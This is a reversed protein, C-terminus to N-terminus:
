HTRGHVEEFWRVFRPIGDEVTTVPRYGLLRAAKRVDACTRRVDGPQEPLRELRAERGVARAILAVLASLTTTRSEGLNVIEVGPGGAATWGVAATVGGVIDDIYTYDRESSGDGYFPVPRGEAILRTFKHIALDPRQRPGYVTFFRLAMIRLGYLQAFTACLLEGARKTAAYPSIPQLAPWDEAFPVPAADGYVSSSSGFVFRRAGARRAAELLVATGEINVSAYRAPDELSPRVGARAALHVIVTEADLLRGALAGDRVDGEVLRFRPAGRLGALNAEKIPRAYFDDFNDLGVVDDGRAVLREAVHSGIFGAAGTVLVRTM